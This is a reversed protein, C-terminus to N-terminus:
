SGGNLAKWYDSNLVKMLKDHQGQMCGRMDGVLVRDAYYRCLEYGNQALREAMPSLGRTRASTMLRTWTRGTAARDAEFSPLSNVLRNAIRAAAMGESNRDVVTAGVPRQIQEVVDMESATIPNDDGEAPEPALAVDDAVAITIATLGRRTLERQDVHIRVATHSRAAAFKLWDGPTLSVTQGAADRGQITLTSAATLRYATGPKPAVREPQLCFASFEAQCVGDACTLQVADDTATLALAQPAANALGSWGLVAALATGALSLVLANQQM